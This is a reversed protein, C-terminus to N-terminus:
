PSLSLNDSSRLDGNFIMSRNVVEEHIYNVKCGTFIICILLGLESMRNQRQRHGEVVIDGVMFRLLYVVSREDIYSGSQQSIDQYCYCSFNLLSLHNWIDMEGYLSADQMISPLNRDIGLGRGVKIRTTYLSPM